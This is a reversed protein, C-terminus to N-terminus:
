HLIEKAGVCNFFFSAISCQHVSFHVTQMELRFTRKYMQTFLIYLTNSSDTKDFLEARIKHMFDCFFLIDYM